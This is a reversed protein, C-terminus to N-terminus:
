CGAWPLLVPAVIEEEEGSHATEEVESAGAVGPSSTTPPSSSITGGVVDIGCAAVWDAYAADACVPRQFFGHHSPSRAPLISGRDSSSTGVCM